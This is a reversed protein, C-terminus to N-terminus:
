LDCCPPRNSDMSPGCRAMRARNWASEAMSRRGAMVLDGNGIVAVAEESFQEHQFRRAVTYAHNEHTGALQADGLGDPRGSRCLRAIKINPDLVFAWKKLPADDFTFFDELIFALGLCDRRM